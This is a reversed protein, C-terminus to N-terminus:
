NVSPATSGGNRLSAVPEQTSPKTAPKAVNVSDVTAYVPTDRGPPLKYEGSNSSEAQMRAFSDAFSEGGVPDAARASLVPAPKFTNTGTDQLSQMQAFEDSFSQGQVPDDSRSRLTPAPKFTYTGVSQLSQMQKFQDAFAQASSQTQASALTAAGILVAGIALKLTKNM